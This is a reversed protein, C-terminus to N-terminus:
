VMATVTVGTASAGVSVTVLVALPESSVGIASLILEASTSFTVASGSAESEILIEPTGLSAVSDAPM